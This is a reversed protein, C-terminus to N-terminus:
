LQSLYDKMQQIVILPIEHSGQFTHLKGKLGAQTLFTELQQGCRYPLVQDHIGHALFFRGTNRKLIKEKQEAKNILASSLLMLGKAQESTNLYAHLAMMGGQSFGGFVMNKVPTKLSLIFKEVASFASNLGQPRELTFDYDSKEMRNFDITWWARGTAAFGIPIELPGDPFLWHLNPDIMEGLPLLDHADAGFGHFLIVKTDSEFNGSEYYKLM